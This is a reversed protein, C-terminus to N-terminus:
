RKSNTLFYFIRSAHGKSVPNKQSSIRLHLKHKGPTLTDNFVIYWPLHLSRSWRTFLDITKFESGDISYELTGADPGSAICIGIATGKFTLTLEDGPNEGILAPIGVYQKRTPANDSPTWNSNLVWGSSIKAKTISLYDGNSYSFKDLPEPLAHAKLNTLVEAKAFADDLFRIISRAYVQHGFPSPHLDKFDDKWNFEGANIRETVEKALHISGTGYHVGVKEHNSIVAPEIGKNYSEMKQPDVFHMIVMDTFPNNQRLHRVIGEMGRIQSRQDAGNTEDNVAAEEFFIDVKGTELVDKILRFAGPISGTSSIGANIFEFQTDPFKKRFYDCVMERWAGHETISGGMFAIRGKKERTFKIFSNNWENRHIHYATPDLQKLEHSTQSGGRFSTMMCCILLLTACCTRKTM